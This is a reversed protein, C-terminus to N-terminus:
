KIVIAKKSEIGNRRDLVVLFTGSVNPPLTIRERQYGQGTLPKKFYINGKVDVVSLAADRHKELYFLVEFNGSSPNPSIALKDLETQKSVIFEDEGLRANANSNVCIKDQRCSGGGTGQIRITNSGANLNVSFVKEMTVINWSHGNSLNVTQASGGNVQVSVVPSSSSYYRLKVYYTGASPVGTVVYDVYHNYNNEEGRTQGNSANPDGTIAGNGGSSESEICQSFNSPTTGNVTVTVSASSSTCGNVTCTATYTTTSAPSVSVFVSSGFNNSWNIVGQCNIAALTTSSGSNISSPNASLQPPNPTACGGGGGGTICIRDQRCSGSGTGQIRITNSGPNLNVTFTQDTWVINWSGTGPLNVTQTSGGNVQVNVSPGSSAYYRLAVTYTGASPVGNVAYDVYHNNNNEEGRTQGNSANPDSTIAGNGSNSEAELCQSFSGGGGGGSVTVSTTATKNSCGSKSGTVTYTYTGTSGPANINLPSSNGSVGNGSWTYSVGACDNGSCGYTLQLGQGPPPNSNSNNAAINFDCNAQTSGCSVSNFYFRQNDGNTEGWFHLGAGDNGSVGEVDALGM